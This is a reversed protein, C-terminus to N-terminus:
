DNVVRHQCLIWMPDSYAANWFQCNNSDRFLTDTEQYLSSHSLM